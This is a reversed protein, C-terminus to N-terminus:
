KRGGRQKDMEKVVAAAFASLEPGTMLPKAKLADVDTRLQNVKPPLSYVEATAAAADRAKAWAGTLVGGLMLLLLGAVVKSWVEQWWRRKGNVEPLSIAEEIDLVKGEAIRQARIYAARAREEQERTVM